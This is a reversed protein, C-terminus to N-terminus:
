PLDNEKSALRPVPQVDSEACRSVRRVVFSDVHFDAGPAEAGIWNRVEPPRQNRKQQKKELQHITGKGISVRRPGPRVLRTLDAQLPPVLTESLHRELVRWAEAGSTFGWSRVFLGCRLVLLLFLLM